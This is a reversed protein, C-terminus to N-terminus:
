GPLTNMLLDSLLQSICGCCYASLLYQKGTDSLTFRLQEIANQVMKMGMDSIILLVNESWLEGPTDM